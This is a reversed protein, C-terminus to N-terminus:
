GGQQRKKQILWLRKIKQHARKQALACGTKNQFHRINKTIGGAFM